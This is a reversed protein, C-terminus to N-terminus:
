SVGWLKLTTGTNLNYTDGQVVINTIASTSQWLNTAINTTGSPDNSRSLMTKYINTNSYSMIHGIATGVGTGYYAFYAVTTPTSTANRGSVASTGNGYLYTRSYNQGSDGNFRLWINQAGTLNTGTIELMLDKFTGPINSFTVTGSPAILTQTAILTYAM